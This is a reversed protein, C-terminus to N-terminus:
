FVNAKSERWSVPLTGRALDFAVVGVDADVGVVQTVAVVVAAVVAVLIREETTLPNMRRAENRVIKNPPSELQIQTAVAPRM